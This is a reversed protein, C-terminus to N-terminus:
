SRATRRKSAASDAPLRTVIRIGRACWGAATHSAQDHVVFGGRTRPECPQQRRMRFDLDGSLRRVAELCQFLDLLNARIKDEEIDLHRPQVAELHQARNGLTDRIREHDEYGSVVT